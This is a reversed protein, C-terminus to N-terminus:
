LERYNSATIEISWAENISSRSIAWSVQNRSMDEGRVIGLGVQKQYILAFYNFLEVYRHHSYFNHNESSFEQYRTM